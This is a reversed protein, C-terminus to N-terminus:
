AEESDKLLSEPENKIRYLTEKEKATLGGSKPLALSLEQQTMKWYLTDFISCNGCIRPGPWRFHGMIPPYDWGAKHAEDATLYEKKGCVECYHWFKRVYMSELLNNNEASSPDEVPTDETESEEPHPIVKERSRGTEWLIIDDGTVKYIADFGESPDPFEFEDAQKIVAPDLKKIEMDRKWQEPPPQMVYVEVTADTSKKIIDIYEKRRISKFLTHEVVVDRDQKLFRIADDLILRQANMLIQMHKETSLVAGHNEKDKLKAQYNKINLIKYKRAPFNKKIFATKGSALVGIVFVIRSM